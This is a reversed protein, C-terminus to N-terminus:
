KRVEVVRGNNWANAAKELTPYAVTSRKCKDCQIIVQDTEVYKYSPVGGCVCKNFLM